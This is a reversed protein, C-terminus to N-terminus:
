NLTLADDALNLEAYHAMLDKSDFPLVKAASLLLLALVILSSIM